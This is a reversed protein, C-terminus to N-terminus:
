RQLSTLGERIAYKTLDAVSKIDLKDMIHKRYTQITKVSLFLSNAIEKISLGEALLQVVERERNTLISFASSGPKEFSNVYDTVM